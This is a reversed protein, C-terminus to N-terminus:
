ATTSLYQPRFLVEATAAGGPCSMVQGLLWIEGAGTPATLSAKKVTDSLYVRKGIDSTEVNGDFTVTVIGALAYRTASGDGAAALTVVGIPDRRVTTAHNADAQFIKGATGSVAVVDGAGLAEGAVGAQTLPGFGTNDALHLAANIDVSEASNTTKVTLRATSDSGQIKFAAANNDVVTFVSAGGTSNLTLTATASGVTVTRTGGTGINIAQSVADNGLSIAGGSSNIQLAGSCDLDFTTVGTSALAGSGNFSWIATADGFTGAGTGSRAALAGSPTLDVSVLGSESLAGAALTLTSTTDSIAVSSKATVAVNGAGAGANLAEFTATLTGASNGSTGWTSSVGPILSLATLGSLSLAGAGDFAFYGVDDGLQTAGGGRLTLAGSPTLNASVLSTETLNGSGDMQVSATGDAIATTAVGSLTAGTFDVTGGSVKLGATLTVRDSSGINRLKGSILVGVNDTQDAM